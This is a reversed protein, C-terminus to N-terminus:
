NEIKLTAILRPCVLSAQLRGLTLLKPRLGIKLKRREREGYAAAAGDGVAKM